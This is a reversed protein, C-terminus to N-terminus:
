LETTRIDNIIVYRMVNGLATFYYVFCYCLLFLDMRRGCAIRHNAPRRSPMRGPRMLSERFLHQQLKFLERAHYSALQQYLQLRIEGLLLTIVFAHDEIRKQAIM